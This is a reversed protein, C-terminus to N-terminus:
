AGFSWQDMKYFERKHAIDELFMIPRLRAKHRDMVRFEINEHGLSFYGSVYKGRYRTCAPVSFYTDAYGTAYCTLRLGTGAIPCNIVKAYHGLCNFTATPAYGIAGNSYTFATRPDAYFKQASM